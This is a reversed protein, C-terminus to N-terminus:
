STAGGGIIENALDQLRALFATGAMGGRGPDGPPIRGAVALAIGRVLADRDVVDTGPAIRGMAAVFEERVTPPVPDDPDETLPVARTAHKAAAHAKEEPTQCAPCRTGIQVGGEYVLSWGDRAAVAMPRVMECAMCTVLELKRM